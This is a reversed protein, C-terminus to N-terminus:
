FSVDTKIFYENSLPEQKPERAQRIKEVNQAKTIKSSKDEEFLVDQYKFIIMSVLAIMISVLFLTITLIIKELDIKYTM